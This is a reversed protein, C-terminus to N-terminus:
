PAMTRVIFPRAGLRLVGLSFKLQLNLSLGFLECRYVAVISGLLLACVLLVFLVHSSRKLM